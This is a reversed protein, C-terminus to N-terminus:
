SDYRLRAGLFACWGAVDAKTASPLFWTRNEPNWKAGRFRRKIEAVLPAEFPFSVNVGDPTESVAMEVWSFAGEASGVKRSMRDAQKNKKRPRWEVSCSRFAKLLKRCEMMPAYLHREKVRWNGNVQNIVLKSDGRVVLDVVAPDYEHALKKLACILAYYEAQNSTVNGFDFGASIVADDDLNIVYRGSGHGSGDFHVVAKM